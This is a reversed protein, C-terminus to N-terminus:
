PKTINFTLEEPYTLTLLLGMPQGKLITKSTLYVEETKDASLTKPKVNSVMNNTPKIDIVKM